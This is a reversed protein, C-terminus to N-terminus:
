AMRAVPVKKLGWLLVDDFDRARKRQVSWTEGDFLGLYTSRFEDRIRRETAGEHLAHAIAAKLIEHRNGEHAHAMVKAYDQLETIELKCDSAFRLMTQVSSTGERFKIKDNGSFRQLFRHVHVATVIPLDHKHRTAPSGFGKQWYYPRQTDPHMGFFVTQGHRVYIEPAGKNSYATPDAAYVVLVKPPRGIRIMPESGLNAMLWNLREYIAEEDMIDLDFAALHGNHCYGFGTKPNQRIWGRIEGDTPNKKSYEPWGQLYCSKKFPQIPILAQYGNERAQRALHFFYGEETPQWGKDLDPTATDAVSLGNDLSM